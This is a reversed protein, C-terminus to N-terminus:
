LRLARKVQSDTQSSHVGAGGHVAVIYFPSQPSAMETQIDDSHRIRYFNACLYTMSLM